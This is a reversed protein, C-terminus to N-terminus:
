FNLILKRVVNIMCLTILCHSLISIAYVFCTKCCISVGLDMVCDRYQQRPSTHSLLTEFPAITRSLHCKGNQPAVVAMNLTACCAVIYPNHLPSPPVLHGVSRVNHWEYVYYCTPMCLLCIGGRKIKSHFTFRRKM